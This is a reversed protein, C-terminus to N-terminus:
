VDRPQETMLTWILMIPLVNLLVELASIFRKKWALNLVDVIKVSYKLARGKQIVLFLVGYM